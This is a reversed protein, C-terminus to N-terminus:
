KVQQQLSEIMKKALASDEKRKERAECILNLNKITTEFM